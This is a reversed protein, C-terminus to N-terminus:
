ITMLCAPVGKRRGKGQFVTISKDTKLNRIELLVDLTKYMTRVSVPLYDFMTEDLLFALVM